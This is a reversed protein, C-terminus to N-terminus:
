DPSPVPRWSDGQASRRRFVWACLPGGWIHLCREWQCEPTVILYGYGDNSHLPRICSIRLAAISLLLMHGLCPKLRYTLLLMSGYFGRFTAGLEARYVLEIASQGVLVVGQLTSIAALQSIFPVPYPPRRCPRILSHLPNRLGDKM